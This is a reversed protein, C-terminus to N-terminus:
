GVGLHGRVKRAVAVLHRLSALVRAKRATATRTNHVLKHSAYLLRGAARGVRGAVSGAVLVAAEGVHLTPM